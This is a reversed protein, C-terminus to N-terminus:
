ANNFSISLHCRYKWSVWDRFSPRYGTELEEENAKENYIEIVEDTTKEYAKALANLIEETSADETWILLESHKPHLAPTNMTTPNLSM